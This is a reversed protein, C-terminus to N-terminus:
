IDCDGGQCDGYPVHDIGKQAVVDEILFAAHDPGWAHIIGFTGCEANVTLQRHLLLGNVHPPVRPMAMVHAHADAHEKHLDSMQLHVPELEYEKKTEGSM